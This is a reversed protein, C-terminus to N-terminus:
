ELTVKNYTKQLLIIKGQGTHSLQDSCWGMCWLDQSPNGTMCMCRRLNCTWDGAPTSMPPLRNMNRQWMSTEWYRERERERERERGGEWEGERGWGRLDIFIDKTLILFLSLSVCKIISILEKLNIGKSGRLKIRKKKVCYAIILPSFITAPFLM